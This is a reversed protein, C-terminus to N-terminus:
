IIKGKDINIKRASLSTLDNAHHTVYIVPIKWKKQLRQLLKIAIEKMSEDLASFPEDLLLLKPETVMARIFAVRQKEGGSIEHPYKTQLHEMKLEKLLSTALTENKMSYIINEWVTKHPFLAGDQFVYGIDRDQISILQKGRQFFVRENLKIEGEDFSVIGAIGNLISTKGAGSPGNLVVIEDSKVEFRVQLTFHALTKKINVTLM